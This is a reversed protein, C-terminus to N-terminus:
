PGDRAPVRARYPGPSCSDMPAKKGFVFDAAINALDRAKHLQGKCSQYTPHSTEVICHYKASPCGHHSSSFARGSTWFTKCVCGNKTTILGCNPQGPLPYFGANCACSGAFCQANDGCTVGECLDKTSKYFHNVGTWSSAFRAPQIIIDNAGAQFGLVDWMVPACRGIQTFREGVLAYEGEWLLNYGVDRLVWALFKALTCSVFLLPFIAARLIGVASGLLFLILWAARSVIWGLGHKFLWKLPGTGRTSLTQNAAGRELLSMAMTPTTSDELLQSDEEDDEEDEAHEQQQMTNLFDQDDAAAQFTADLGAVEQEVLSEGFEVKGGAEVKAYLSSRQEESLSTGTMKLMAEVALTNKVAAGEAESLPEGASTSNDEIATIAEQLRQLEEWAAGFDAGNQNGKGQEKFGVAMNSGVRKLTESTEPAVAVAYGPHSEDHGQATEIARRCYKLLRMIQRMRRYCKSM